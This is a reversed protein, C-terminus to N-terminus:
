SEDEKLDLRGISSWLDNKKKKDMGAGDLLANLFDPSEMCEKPTMHGFKSLKDRLSKSFIFDDKM